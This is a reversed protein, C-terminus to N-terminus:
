KKFTKDIINGVKQATKEALFNERVRQQGNKGFRKWLNRDGVLKKVVQSMADIDGSPVIYGTQGNVVTEPVGGVSFAVVPLGCAMAEIISRPHAEELSTHLYVDALLLLDLVDDRFGLLRVQKELGMSRILSKIKQVYVRDRDHSGAILLVVSDWKKIIENVVQLAYHQGKMPKLHGVTVIVPSKDILNLETTIKNRNCDKDRFNVDDIGNHVVRLKHNVVRGRLSDACSQSVVVVADAFNLYIHKYWSRGTAMARVHCIFPIRALKAAILANRSSGDTSNGYVLDFREQKILSYIAPIARKSLDPFSFYPIQERQLTESFLGQEPLLVAVNFRKRLYKLLLLLSNTPGTRDATYSVFLIKKTM